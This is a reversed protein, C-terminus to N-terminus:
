LSGSVLARINSLSTERLLTGNEYVVELLGEQEQERTQQDYMVFKGNEKEVRLLGKASKKTSDTKPDKFIPTDVGNKVVNTAKVASGHTDRTVYQYTYSGIGLVVTPAFGKAKLRSIIQEQRELTISDGYIAGIHEDLLKFGKDTVTGGFTDWLCEVLGKQEPTKEVKEFKKLTVSDVFYLKDGRDQWQGEYSISFDAKFLVGDSLFYRCDSDPGTCGQGCEESFEECIQERLSETADEVSGYSEIDKVTGCLIDVPDGSDPRIVLKGDRAMILDKLAPVVKTVVGWFDYSDSVYSLIGTPSVETMLKKMYLYEAALKINIM